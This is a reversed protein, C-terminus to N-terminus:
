KGGGKEIEQAWAEITAKDGASATAAYERLLGAAIVGGEDAYLGGYYKSLVSRVQAATAGKKLYAPIREKIGARFQDLAMDRDSVFENDHIDTYDPNYFNAQGNNKQMLMWDELPMCNYRSDLANDFHGYSFVLDRKQNDHGLYWADCVLKQVNGNVKCEVEAAAHNVVTGYNKKYSVIVDSSVGAAQMMENLSYAWEGCTGHKTTRLVDQPSFRMPYHKRGKLKNIQEALFDFGALMTSDVVRVFSRRDTAVNCVGLATSGDVQRYGYVKDLLPLGMAFVYKAKVCDNGNKVSDPANDMLNKTFSKFFGAHEKVNSLWAPNNGADVQKITNQIHARADADLNFDSSSVGSSSMFSESAKAKYAIGSLESPLTGSRINDVAASRLASVDASAAAGSVKADIEKYVSNASDMSEKTCQQFQTFVLEPLPKTCALGSEDLETGEPCICEGESASWEANRVRKCEQEEPTPPISLCGADEVSEFGSKCNGSVPDFGTPTDECKSGGPLCKVALGNEYCTVKPNGGWESVWCSCEYTYTRGAGAPCNAQECAVTGRSWQFGPPCQSDLGPNHEPVEASVFFSFFLCFVFFAQIRSRLVFM